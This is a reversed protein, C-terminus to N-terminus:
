RTRIAASMGLKYHGPVNCFVVYHGPELDVSLKPTAGSSIDEVEDISHLADEDVDGDHLPLADAAKDTKVVVFEHTSPGHNTIDFTVKGASAADDSLQIDFDKLTADVTSAGAHGSPPSSDGDDGCATLVFSLTALVAVGALLKSM